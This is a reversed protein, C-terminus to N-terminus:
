QISDDSDAMKLNNGPFDKSNKREKNLLHKQYSRYAGILNLIAFAMFLVALGLSAKEM